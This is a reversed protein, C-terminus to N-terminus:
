SPNTSDAGDGDGGGGGGAATAKPHRGQHVTLCTTQDTKEREWKMLFDLFVVRYGSISVMILAVTAEIVLLFTVSVYRIRGVTFDYQIALRTAAVVINFISLSKFVFNAITYSRVHNAMHVLLIPISMVLVDTVIDTVTVANEWSRTDAGDVYRCQGKSACLVIPQVITFLFGISCLGVVAWYYRTLAVVVYAYPPKYFKFQTLYCFKVCYIAIWILEITAVLRRSADTSQSLATPDNDTDEAWYLQHIVSQLLAFGALLIPVGAVLFYDNGM